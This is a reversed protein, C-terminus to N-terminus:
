EQQNAIKGPLAAIIPYLLHVCGLMQSIAHIDHIDHVHM